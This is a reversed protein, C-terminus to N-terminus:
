MVENKKLNIKLRFVKACKLFHIIIKQADQHNHAVFATDDTFILKCVLVNKTSRTFKFQNANFLNAKSGYEKPSIM